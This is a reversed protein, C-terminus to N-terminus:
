QPQEAPLPKILYYLDWDYNNNDNSFAVLSGYGGFGCKAPSRAQKSTLGPQLKYTISGITRAIGHTPMFSPLRIAFIDHEVLKDNNRTGEVLIHNKIYDLSNDSRQIPESSNRRSKLDDIITWFNSIRPGAFLHFHMNYWNQLGYLNMLIIYSSFDESFAKLLNAQSFAFSLVEDAFKSDTEHFDDFYTNEIINTLPYRDVDVLIGDKNQMKVNGLKRHDAHFILHEKYDRARPVKSLVGDFFQDAIQIHRTGFNDTYDDWPARGLEALDEFCMHKKIIDIISAINKCFM